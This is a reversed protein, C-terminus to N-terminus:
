VIAINERKFVEEADMLVDSIIRNQRSFHEMKIDDVYFALDFQAGDSSFAALTAGPLKWDALPEIFHIGHIRERVATLRNDLAEEEGGHATRLKRSLLRLKRDWAAILALYESQPLSGKEKEDLWRLIQRRLEPVRRKELMGVGGWQGFLGKVKLREEKTLGGAELERLWGILEQLETDLGDISALVEYYAYQTAMTHTWQRVRAAEKPLSRAELTAAVQEGGRVLGALLRDLQDEREQELRYLESELQNEQHDLTGIAALAQILPALATSPLVKVLEELSQSIQQMRQEDMAAADVEHDTTIGLVRHLRARAAETGKAPPLHRLATQAEGLRVNMTKRLNTLRTHIPLDSERGAQWAGLTIVASDLPGGGEGALLSTGVLRKRLVRLKTDPDGLINRHSELIEQLLMRVKEPDAKYDTTVKTSVKLDVTPKTINSITADTLHTNPVYLLAHNSMDYLESMRLGVRQVGCIKGDSLIILDNERFPPDIMLYIGSFLNSLSDQFALGFILGVAGISVAVLGLDVGLTQLIILLAALFFILPGLTNLIPVLLDDLRNESEEARRKLWRLVVEKVIRWALYFGAATLVVFYLNNIAIDLWRPLALEELASVLGYALVAVFVPVRITRLVVNDADSRTRGVLTRLAQFLLVYVLLALGLWVVLTLLFGILSNQPWAAGFATHLFGYIHDGVVPLPPVPSPEAAAPRDGAALTITGSFTANTLTIVQQLPALPPVGPLSTAGFLLSM